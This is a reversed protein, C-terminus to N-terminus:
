EAPPGNLYGECTGAGKPEPIARVVAWLEPFWWDPKSANAPHRDGKNAEGDPPRIGLRECAKFWDVGHGRGCGALVHGLEHVVTFAVVLPCFTFDYYINIHSLKDTRIECFTAGMEGRGSLVLSFMRLPDHHVVHIPVTALRRHEDDTGEFYDLAAHRVAEIYDDWDVRM